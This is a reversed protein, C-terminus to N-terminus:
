RLGEAVPSTCDATPLRGSSNTQMKENCAPRTETTCADSIPDM